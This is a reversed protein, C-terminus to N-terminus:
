FSKSAIVKKNSLSIQSVPDFGEISKEERKRATSMKAQIDPYNFSEPDREHLFYMYWEDDVVCLRSYYKAQYGKQWDPEDPALAIKHIPM